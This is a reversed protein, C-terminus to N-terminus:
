KGQLNALIAPYREGQLSIKDLAKNINALDDDSLTVAAGGLNEVLRAM